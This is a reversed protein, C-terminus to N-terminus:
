VLSSEIRILFRDWVNMNTNINTNTNTHTYVNVRQDHENAIM